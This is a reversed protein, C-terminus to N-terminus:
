MPVPDIWVRRDLYRGLEVLSRRANDIPKDQYIREPRDTTRLQSAMDRMSELTKLLKRDARANSWIVAREMHHAIAQLYHGAMVHRGGDRASTALLLYHQALLWHSRAFVADLERVTIDPQDINAAIYALREATETMPPVLVAQARSIEARMFGESVGLDHRADDFRGAVCADRISRFRRSPLDYFLVWVQDDLVLLQPEDSATVATAPAALAVVILSLIIKNM